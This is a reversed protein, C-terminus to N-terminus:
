KKTNSPGKAAYYFLFFWHHKSFKQGVLNNRLLGSVHGTHYVLFVISKRNHTSIVSVVLYSRKPIVYHMIFVQTM